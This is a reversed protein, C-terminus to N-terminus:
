SNRGFSMMNFKVKREPAHIAVMDKDTAAMTMELTLRSIQAILAVIAAVLNRRTPRFSLSIPM